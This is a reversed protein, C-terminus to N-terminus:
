EGSEGSTSLLALIADSIRDAESTTPTDWWGGESRIIELSLLRSRIEERTPMLYPRAAVLAARMGTTCREAVPVGEQAAWYALEATAVVADPIEVSRTVVPGKPISHRRIECCENM